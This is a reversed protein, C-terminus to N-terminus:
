GPRKEPPSFLGLQPQQARKVKPEVGKRDAVRKRPSTLSASIQSLKATWAEPALPLAGAAIAADRRSSALLYHPIACGSSRDKPSLGFAAGFSDLEEVTDAILHGSLGHHRQWRPTDVFVPM